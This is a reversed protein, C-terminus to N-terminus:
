SASRSTARSSWSPAWYLLAATVLKSILQVGNSASNALSLVKFSAGVYAALQDEWRRQMQPEVAMAKLTEV